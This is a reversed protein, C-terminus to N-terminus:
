VKDFTTTKKNTDTARQGRAFYVYMCVGSFVRVCASRVSDITKKEKGRADTPEEKEEKEEQEEKAQPTCSV